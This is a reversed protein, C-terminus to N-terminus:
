DWTVRSCAGTYLPERVSQRSVIGPAKVEVLSSRVASLPRHPPSTDLWM